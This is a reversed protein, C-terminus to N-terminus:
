QAPKSGVIPKGRSWKGDPERILPIIRLTRTYFRDSVCANPHAKIQVQLEDWTNAYRHPPTADKKTQVSAGVCQVEYRIGEGRPVRLGEWGVIVSSEAGTEIRLQAMRIEDLRDEIRDHQQELRFVRGKARFTEDAVHGDPYVGLRELAGHLFRWVPGKLGVGRRTDYTDRAKALEESISSLQASRFGREAELSRWEVDSAFWKPEAEDEAAASVAVGTMGLSSLLVM